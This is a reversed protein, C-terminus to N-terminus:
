ETLHLLKADREVVRQAVMRVAFQAEADAVGVDAVLTDLQALRMGLWCEEEHGPWDEHGDSAVNLCADLLDSMGNLKLLHPQQYMM